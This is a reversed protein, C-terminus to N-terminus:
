VDYKFQSAICKNFYKGKSKAELLRQYKYNPVAHYHRVTGDGLEVELEETQPNYAVSKLTLSETHLKRRLM